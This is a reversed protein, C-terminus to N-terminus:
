REAYIVQASGLISKRRLYNPDQEVSRRTGLDVARGFISSLEAEM